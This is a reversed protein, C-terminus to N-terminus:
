RNTSVCWNKKIPNWAPREVHLTLDTTFLEKEETCKFQRVPKLVVVTSQQTLTAQMGQSCKSFRLADHTGKSVAGCKSFM